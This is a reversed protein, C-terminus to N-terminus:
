RNYLVVYPKTPELLLAGTLNGGQDQNLEVTGISECQENREDGSDPGLETQGCDSQGDCMWGRPICEFSAPCQFSHSGCLNCSSPGTQGTSNPAYYNPWEDSGDACDIVHDCCWARPICELSFSCQYEDPACYDEHTPLPDLTLTEENNKLAFTLNLLPLELIPSDNITTEFATKATEEQIFDNGSALSSNLHSLNS